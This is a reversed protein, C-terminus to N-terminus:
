VCKLVTISAGSSDTVTATSFHRKVGGVRIWSGDADVGMGGNASSFSFYGDTDIVFQNAGKKIEFGSASFCAFSASTNLPMISYEIPAGFEITCKYGEAINSYMNEPPLAAAPTQSDTVCKSDSGIYVRMYIDYSGPVWADSVFNFGLNSSTTISNILGGTTSSSGRDWTITKIRQGGWHNDINVQNGLFCQIDANEIPLSAMAGGSTYNPCTEGKPCIYLNYGFKVANLSYKYNKVLTITIDSCHMGRFRYNYGNNPITVTGLKINQQVGDGYVLSSSFTSTSLDFTGAVNPITQNEMNEDGTIRLIVADEITNSYVDITNDYVSVRGLSNQQSPKTDLQSLSLGDVDIYQANIKGTTIMGGDIETTKILNTVQNENLGSEPIEINDNVADSISAWTLKVDSGFEVNGNKDWSINGNALSGQGTKFNFWVAPKLTGTPEGTTEDFSFLQFKTTDGNQDAQSFVWDKYFVAPGVNASDFMGIKSYLVDFSPLKKWSASSGSNKVDNYPTTSSKYSDRVLYFYTAADVDGAKLGSDDYVYPLATDSTTYTKSSSFEGDFYMMKGAVGAPGDQVVDVNVTDILIPEASGTQEYYLEYKIYERVTSMQNTAFSLDTDNTMESTYGDITRYIAYADNTKSSLQSLTLEELSEGDVKYISVKIAEENKVSGVNSKRITNDSISLKYITSPLVIKKWEYSNWTTPDAATTNVCTGLYTAGAFNNVNFNTGKDDTAYALHLYQTTGDKGDEGAIGQDGKPGQAGVFQKWEYKTYDNSDEEKDDVYTGIYAGGSHNMPNGNANDSYAVHFYRSTGDKGNEGKEGKEGQPGAPGQPGAAGAAGDFVMYIRETDVVEGNQILALSIYRDLDLDGTIASTLDLIGNSPFVTGVTASADKDIAYKLTVATASSVSLIRSKSGKTYSIKVEFDRNRISGDSDVKITNFFPVISYYEASEGPAGPVVKIIRFSVSRSIGGEFEVNFVLTISDTFEPLATIEIDTGNNTFEVGTTDCTITKVVLAEGGKFANISNHIPFTGDKINKNEDCPININDNSMDVMINPASASIKNILFTGKYEKGDAVATLTFSVKANPSADLDSVTFTAYKNVGKEITVYPAVNENNSVTYSLDTVQLEQTGKFVHFNTTCPFGEVPDDDSNLLVSDMPNDIYAVITTEGPLGNDGKDGKDGKEGDIPTERVPTESWGNEDLVYTKEVANWVLTAEISWIHSKNPMDPFISPRSTYWNDPNRDMRNYDPYQPATESGLCYRKEIGNGSPGIITDGDLMGIINDSTTIKAVNAKIIDLDSSMTINGRSDETLCGSKILYTTKEEEVYVMMGEYPYEVYPLENFTLVTRGDVPANGEIIIPVDVYNIKDYRAM